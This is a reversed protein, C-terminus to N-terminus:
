IAIAAIEMPKITEALKTRRAATAANGEVELAHLVSQAEDLPTRGAFNPAKVDAGFQLLHITAEAHGERAMM